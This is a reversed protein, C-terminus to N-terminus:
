QRGLHESDGTRRDNRAFIRPWSMLAISLLTHLNNVGLTGGDGRMCTDRIKICWNACQRRDLKPAQQSGITTISSLGSKELFIVSTSCSTRREFGRELKWQEFGKIWPDYVVGPIGSSGILLDVRGLREDNGSRRNNRASM